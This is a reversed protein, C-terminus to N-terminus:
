VKIGEKGWAGGRTGRLQTPHSKGWEGLSVPREKTLQQVCGGVPSNLVAMVKQWVTSSVWGEASRVGIHEGVAVTGAKPIAEEEGLQLLGHRWGLVRM